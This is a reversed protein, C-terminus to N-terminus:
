KDVVKKRMAMRLLVPLASGGGILAFLLDLLSFFTEESGPLFINWIAAIGFIAGIAIKISNKINEKM